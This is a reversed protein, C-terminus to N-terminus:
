RWVEALAADLEAKLALSEALHDQAEFSFAGDMTYWVYVAGMDRDGLWREVTIGGYASSESVSRAQKAAEGPTPWVGLIATDDGFTRTVVYM